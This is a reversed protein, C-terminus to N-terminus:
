WLCIFVIPAAGVRLDRGCDPLFGGLTLAQELLEQGPAVFGGSRSYGSEAHQEDRTGMQWVCVGFLIVFEAGDVREQGADVSQGRFVVDQGPPFVVHDGRQANSGTQEGSKAPQEFFRARTKM